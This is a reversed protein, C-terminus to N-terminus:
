LLPFLCMKYELFILDFILDLKDLGLFILTETVYSLRITDLTPPALDEYFNTVNIFSDLDQISWLYWFLCM